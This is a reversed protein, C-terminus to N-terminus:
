SLAGQYGFPNDRSDDSKQLFRTEGSPILPLRKESLESARLFYREGEAAVKWQFAAGTSANPLYNCQLQLSFTM